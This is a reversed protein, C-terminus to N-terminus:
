LDFPIRKYAEDWKETRQPLYKKLRFSKAVVKRGEGISSIKGGAIAQVLINGIAAAEVPGAIVPIGAADATLQNLMENQAGGGVIHLIKVVNGTILNMKEIATRYKFALSEFICRVIEEKSEPCPQMTKRCFELIAARMDHPNLFSGDGPDVICKFERASQAMRMLEDYGYHEGNNEWNRRVEQLLWLGMINQLFNIKGGVGGENTFNGGMSFENIIPRETEIGILSWTGSSLYAWDGELAPVAAIASATDHSGVAVVNVERSLGGEDVIEPLIPGILTGPHVIPAMINLPLDLRSFIAEDWEKQVANLMQSTSAITYESFKKGTLFFSMLDPMFLLKSFEGFNGGCEEKMIYLQYLSNIQMLQIGTRAYIEKGPIKEFVKQMIGNTRSDRYSFPLDLTGDQKRVLGFDVGWTDIGVSEINGKQAALKLSEKVERFLAFVDWHLHGSVVVPVNSFRHVEELVIKGSDLTGVFARGSEAGLDIALFRSISM